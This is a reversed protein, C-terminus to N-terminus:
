EDIIINDSAKKDVYFNYLMGSLILLGGAIKGMSITNGIVFDILMGMSLQGIFLLLTSYITPIKPIVINNISLVIVGIFGGLYVWFPIDIFLEIAMNIHRYNFILVLTSFLLGVTYNVLSGQFIGIKEALKSNIVLSLIVACGTLFALIIYTLTEV